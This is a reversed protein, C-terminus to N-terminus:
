KLVANSRTSNVSHLNHHQRVDVSGLEIAEAFYPLSCGITISQTKIEQMLLFAEMADPYSRRTQLANKEGQWLSSTNDCCLFPHFAPITTQSQDKGLKGFIFNFISTLKLRWGYTM